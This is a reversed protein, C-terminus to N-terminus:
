KEWYYKILRGTDRSKALYDLIDHLDVYFDNFFKILEPDFRKERAFMASFISVETVHEANIFKDICLIKESRSDAKNVVSQLETMQRVFDKGDDIMMESAHRAIRQELINKADNVLYNVNNKLLDITANLEENTVSAYTKPDAIRIYTTIVDLIRQTATPQLFALRLTSRNNLLTALRKQHDKTMNRTIEFKRGIINTTGPIIVKKGLKASLYDPFQLYPKTPKKRESIYKQEKKPAIKVKTEYYLGGKPGRKVELGKPPKEQPKLYIKGKLLKREEVDQFEGVKYYKELDLKILDWDKWDVVLVEYGKQRLNFIRHSGWFFSYHGDSVNHFNAEYLYIEQNWWEKLFEDDFTASWQGRAVLWEFAASPKKEHNLAIIKM